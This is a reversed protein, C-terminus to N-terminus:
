LLNGENNIKLTGEPVPSFFPPVPLGVQLAQLPVQAGVVRVVLEHNLFEQVDKGDALYQLDQLGVLNLPGDCDPIHWSYKRQM